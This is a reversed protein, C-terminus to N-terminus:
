RGSVLAAMESNTLRRSSRPSHTKMKLGVTGSRQRILNVGDGRGHPSGRLSPIPQARRFHENHSATGSTVLVNGGARVWSGLTAIEADSLCVAEPVLLTKVEAIAATDLRDFMRWPIQMQVLLQECAMATWWPSRSNWALSPQHRLLAIEGAPRTNKFLKWHDKVWLAIKQKISAGVSYHPLHRITFGMCALNGGNAAASLALSAEIRGPERMWHYNCTSIGYERTTKYTGVRSILRGHKFDLDLPDESWVADVWPLLREAWQTFIRYSNYSAGWAPNISVAVDPSLEHIFRRLHRVLAFEGDWRFRFWSQVDPSRVLDGLAQFPAFGPDGAQQLPDFSPLAISEFNVPGFLEKQQKADPYSEQLWQRYAQTCRPCRCTVSPYFSFHMGDIHILDAGMVTVAHRFEAELYRMASPHLHCIRSRFTQQSSYHSRRGLEGVTLWDDVDPYEGRLTEPIANDIRLYLGVRLGRDHARRIIDAFKDIGEQIAARGYGKTHPLILHNCGLAAIRNLVDNSFEQDYAETEDAWALGARRRFALDEWAGVFISPEAAFWAARPPPGGLPYAHRWCDFAHKPQPLTMGIGVPKPVPPGQDNGIEKFVYRM